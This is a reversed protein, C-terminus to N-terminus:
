FRKKKVLRGKKPDYYYPSEKARIINKQTPPQKNQKRQAQQKKFLDGNIARNIFTERSLVVLTSDLKNQNPLLCYLFNRIDKPNEILELGRFDFIVPVISGLWSSPFCEDPFQVIYRNPSDTRRLDKCGKLFRLFDRKLRTGDVVWVMKKYFRERSIREQPNIHSHQFEIVVGNSTQVDAIHKEGTSEDTFTVEQWENPFNNKWLRHWEKETEWWPDCDRIGKHAWHNVKFEGCKAILESGCSPCIGKAGKTAEIRNNDILAFKM